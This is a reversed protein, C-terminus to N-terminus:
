VRVGFHAPDDAGRLGGCRCRRPCNGGCKDPQAHDAADQAGRRVPIPNWRQELYEPVCFDRLDAVGAQHKAYHHALLDCDNQCRRGQLSDPLGVMFQRMLFLGLSSGFAPFILAMYTDILHLKAMVLYSPLALVDATFLLSTVIISFVIKDGPFHLKALPFAAMSALLVHGVTAVISVMVSNFLYRLFPVWSNSALRILQTYNETTPNVVFFKPPFIFIEDLPKFSQLIAYIFPLAMFAGFILLILFIGVDGGRKRNIKRQEYVKSM